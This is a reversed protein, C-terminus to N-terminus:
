NAADFTGTADSQEIQLRVYDVFRRYKTRDWEAYLMQVLLIPMNDLSKSLVDWYDQEPDLRYAAKVGCKPCWILEGPNGQPADTDWEVHVFALCNSCHLRFKVVDLRELRVKGDKIQWAFAHALSMACDPCLVLVTRIYKKRQAVTLGLVLPDIGRYLFAAPDGCARDGLRRVSECPSGVLRAYPNAM